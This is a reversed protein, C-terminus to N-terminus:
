VTLSIRSTGNAGIDKAITVVAPDDAILTLRANAKAFCKAIGLGIGRSSGTIVVNKGHLSVKM